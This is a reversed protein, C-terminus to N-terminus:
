NSMRVHLFSLQYCCYNLAARSQFLSLTYLPTDFIYRHTRKRLYENEIHNHLSYVYVYLYNREAFIPQIQTIYINWTCFHSSHRYSEVKLHTFCAIRHVHFKRRSIFRKTSAADVFGNAGNSFRFVFYLPVPSIYIM